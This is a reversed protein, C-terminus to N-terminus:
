PPVGMPGHLMAGMGSLAARCPVLCQVSSEFDSYAFPRAVQVGQGGQKEAAANPKSAQRVRQDPEPNTEDSARPAPVSVRRRPTIRIVSNTKAFSHSADAVISHRGKGRRSKTNPGLSLVTM